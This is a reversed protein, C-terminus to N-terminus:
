SMSVDWEGTNYKVTDGNDPTQNPTATAYILVDGAAGNCLGGHTILGWSGSPTAFTIDTGNSSAGASAATWDNHDARSYNNAVPEGATSGTDGPDSTFLAARIDPQALAQNRFMRDLLSNSWNNCIAGSNFSVEIESAAFSPTNGNVVSKDATLDGYALMNGGSLADFIAWATITGWSGSAQNFTVTGSNSIARTAAAGFTCAERAYNNGVPESWGGSTSSDTPDTTSLALYVTAAPTYATNELTHDVLADEAHNTLGSM